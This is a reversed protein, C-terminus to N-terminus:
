RCRAARRARRPGAGRGLRDLVTAATAISGVARQPKRRM